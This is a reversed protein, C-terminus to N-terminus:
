KFFFFFSKINLLEALYCLKSRVRVSDPQKHSFFKICRCVNWPWIHCKVSGVFKHLNMVCLSVSCCALTCHLCSVLVAFMGRYYDKVYHALLMLCSTVTFASFAEWDSWNNLTFGFHSLFGPRLICRKLTDLTFRADGTWRTKPMLIIQATPSLSISLSLTHWALLM